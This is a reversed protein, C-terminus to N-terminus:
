SGPGAEVAFDRSLIWLSSMTYIVMLALMPLQSLLARRQSKVLRGGEVHALFVAVVQGVGPNASARKQNGVAVVDGTLKSVPLQFKWPAIAASDASPSNSFTNSLNGAATVPSM